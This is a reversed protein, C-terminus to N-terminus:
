SQNAKKTCTVTGEIQLVITQLLGLDFMDSKLIVEFFRLIYKISRAPTRNFFRLSNVLLSIYGNLTNHFLWFFGFIRKNYVRKPKALYSLHM